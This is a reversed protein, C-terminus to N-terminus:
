VPDELGRKQLLSVLKKVEEARDVPCVLTARDVHVIILDRVGLAAVVANGDAHVVLGSTDKAVLKGRHHNGNKDAQELRRLAAWIGVDDWAFGAELVLVCPEKELVGRDVSIKRIGRYERRLANSSGLGRRLAQNLRPMWRALAGLFAGVRWVFMGSNWYYAGSRVYRRATAVDPKERFARARFLGRGLRRRLLAGRRIYGYGTAPRTPTIGFTLLHKPEADAAEAALRLSTRFAGEQSIAHDAPLVAMVAAGDRRELELAAWAIAAATDRGEPEALLQAPPLEPLERATEAAFREHTVVWLREPPVLGRLRDATTRLLTREDLLRLFQKPRGGRSLPWFRTGSGGALIVAHLNM